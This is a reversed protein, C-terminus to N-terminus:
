NLMHKIPQVLSGIDGAGLTLLVDISKRELVFLLEDKSCLEKKQNDCLDLLMQSNIGSIPKERAPYIDLLVLDDAGQLSLAFDKALKKTRSYLHPQFVVLIERLPYLKKTTCITASVEEPHHAYDDIYVLEKTDILKDFRRNVGKFTVIGNVIDNFTLGLNFAVVTAAVANSVNHVGPMHLEINKRIKQTSFREIKDSIMIDFVMRADKVRINEAFYDAKKVVSYNIKKISSYKPFDIDISEEVLLLGKDKIQSVFQIFALDLDRKDKYVDFHDIGVSTIVAIDAHIQLFSRDFEDAEVILMNAKDALLLNTNYNRSIGGLFATVEYGSQYLIHALMTSTTTKGHTGAIAITFVKKSIMGLVEARKFINFEKNIFFKFIQNEEPIAPTYIVLTESVKSRIIEQPIDLASDEYDIQIGEKQLTICLDSKVKDYGFVSKGKANFYRALASMGIGGVGILYIKKYLDLNM